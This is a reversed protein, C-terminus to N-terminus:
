EDNTALRRHDVIPVSDAHNTPDVVGGMPLQQKQWYQYTSGIQRPTGSYGFGFFFTASRSKTRVLIRNDPYTMRLYRPSSTAARAKAASNQLAMLQSPLDFGHTKNNAPALTHDDGVLNQCQSKSRGDLQM